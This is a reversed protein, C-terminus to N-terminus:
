KKHAHWCCAATLQDYTVPFEINYLTKLWSCGPFIVCFWCARLKFRFQGASCTSHCSHLCPSSAWWRWWLVTTFHRNNLWYLDMGLWYFLIDRLIILLSTVLPRVAGPSVRWPPSGRLFFKKTSLNVFFLLSVLDSLYFLHPTVGQLPHCGLSLLLFRYHYHCRHAFFSLDDTKLFFFGPTVGCFQRSFIYFPRWTKWSFFLPNIGETAAGPTVWGLSAVCYLNMFVFVVSFYM